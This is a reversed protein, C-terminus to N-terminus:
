FLKVYQYSVPGSRGPGSSFLMFLFSHLLHQKSLFFLFLFLILLHLRCLDRDCFRLAGEPFPLSRIGTSTQRRRRFSLPVLAPAHSRMVSPLSEPLGPFRLFVRVFAFFVLSSLAFFAFILAMRMGFLEWSVRGYRFTNRLPIKM